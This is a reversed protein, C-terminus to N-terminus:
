EKDDDPHHVDQGHKVRQWLDDERQASPYPAHTAFSAPASAHFSNPDGREGDDILLQKMARRWIHECIHDKDNPCKCGTARRRNEKQLKRAIKLFPDGRRNPRTRSKTASM